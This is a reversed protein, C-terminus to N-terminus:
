REKPMKIERPPSPSEKEKEPPPLEKAPRGAMEATMAMLIERALEAPLPADKGREIYFFREAPESPARSFTGSMNWVVNGSQADVATFTLTARSPATIGGYFLESIEGFVATESSDERALAAAEGIGDVFRPVRKVQSSIGGSQLLGAMIDALRPGEGKTTDMYRFNYVSTKGLVAKDGTTKLLSIAPVPATACGSALAILTLATLLTGIKKM